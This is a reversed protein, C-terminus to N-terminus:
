NLGQQDPKLGTFCGFVFPILNSKGNFNDYIFLALGVLQIILSLKNKM